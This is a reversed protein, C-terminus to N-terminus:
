LIGDPDATTIVGRQIRQLAPPTEIRYDHQRGRGTRYNEINRAAAKEVASRYTHRRVGIEAFSVSVKKRNKVNPFRAEAECRLM